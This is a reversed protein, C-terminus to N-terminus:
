GQLRKPPVLGAWVWFELLILRRQELARLRHSNTLCGSSAHPFERVGSNGTWGGGACRGTHIRKQFVGQSGAGRGM